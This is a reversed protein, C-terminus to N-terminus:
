PQFRSELGTLDIAFIQMFDQGAYNVLAEGDPTTAPVPQNFILLKGDPSIAIRSREPGDAPTLPTSHGFHPGPRVCTAVIANASLCLIHDGAPHWRINPAAGDPLRTAQVPRKAPDPDRDSGDSPIVFVQERGESDKAFYAIRSGDPAGRVIGGAWDHTLRRVTVGRPPAPYRTADGADATTVDVGDPIEVVFLSEEYTEGDDNRVKGIFARMRGHPDVWSDGLAREIEGPQATGMPVPRVLVAFWHTADGPAEPHPELYGITRDYQPLLLDDYTFGVRRGDRAYEHRHTGGRHAGPTTPRDIATDRWDLWSLAGSGDAPVVAGRRNPKAYPGREALEEVLPGHIFAVVPETFSFSAAGVGPAPRTGTVIAGPRYIEREEGTELDLVAISQSHEIGPGVTERTDFVVLRGDPSFNDGNDLDHNHPAFTLQRAPPFDAASAALSGM